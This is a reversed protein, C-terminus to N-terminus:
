DELNSELTAILKEAEWLKDQTSQLTEKLETNEELLRKNDYILTRLDYKSKM